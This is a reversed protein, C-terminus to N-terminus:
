KNLNYIRYVLPDKIEFICLVKFIYLKETYVFILHCLYMYRWIYMYIPM